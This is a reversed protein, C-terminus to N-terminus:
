RTARAPSSNAAAHHAPQPLHGSALQAPDNALVGKEGFTTVLTGTKADIAALGDITSSYIRPGVGNTGPWYAPGRVATGAINPHAAAVAVAVVARAAPRRRATEM